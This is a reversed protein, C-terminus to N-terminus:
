RQTEAGAQGRDGSAAATLVTFPAGLVPDTGCVQNSTKSPDSGPQDPMGSDLIGGEPPSPGVRWNRLKMM